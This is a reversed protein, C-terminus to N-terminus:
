NVHISESEAALVFALEAVQDRLGNLHSRIAARLEEVTPTFEQSDHEVAIVKACLDRITQESDQSM